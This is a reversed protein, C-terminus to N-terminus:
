TRARASAILADLPAWFAARAATSSGKPAAHDAVFMGSSKVVEYRKRGAPHSVLASWFALGGGAGADSDRDGVQILVRTAAPLPPLAGAVLGAPFVADVAAPRPLAWARAEAAYYMALSAGYSYGIAVVPVGRVRLRVFGRAVGLRYARLRQPGGEIDNTGLQYRPFIVANGRAVLHDLWPRFQKVWPHAPSPPFLKWGHGFVVVTRVPGRPRLLWVQDVGHGFPGEIRTGGPTSAMPAGSISVSAALAAVAVPVARAIVPIRARRRGVRDM